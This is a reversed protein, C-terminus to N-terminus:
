SVCKEQFLLEKRRVFSEDKCFKQGEQYGEEKFFFIFFSPKQCFTAREKWSRGHQVKDEDTEFICYVPMGAIM